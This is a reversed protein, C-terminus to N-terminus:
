NRRNYFECCKNLFCSKCAPKLASCVLAAFDLLALNAQKTKHGTAYIRALNIIQKDRRSEKITELGFYRKFIRAVNTDVIWEEKGYAGSLVAGAVYDGVGTLTKLSERDEPVKSNYKKKIEKAVLQFAPTRWHLGLPYLMKEVKKKSASALTEPDPYENIFQEYVGKVQDAKTRRLMLEAILVKYPDETNRWPYDRKNDKFWELLKKRLKAIEPFSDSQNM